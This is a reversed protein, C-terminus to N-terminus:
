RIPETKVCNIFRVWLTYISGGAAFGSMTVLQLSISIYKPTAVVVVVVVVVMQMTVLLVMVVVVVVM